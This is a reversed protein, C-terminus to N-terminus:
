RNTQATPSSRGRPEPPVAWWALLAVIAAAVYIAGFLWLPADYYLWRRVWFAIFGDNEFSARLVNEWVTLPCAIGLLSEAAVFLIGGLHLIRLSRRRVFRWHRWAGLPILVFGLVIFAAIFFHVVLVVEALLHM